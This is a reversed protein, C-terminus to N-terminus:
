YKLKTHPAIFFQVHICCKRSNRLTSSMPLQFGERHLVLSWNMRKTLVIAASPMAVCLVLDDAANTNTKNQKSFIRSKLLFFFLISVQVQLLETESLCTSDILCVSCVNEQVFLNRISFICQRAM